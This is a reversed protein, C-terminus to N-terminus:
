KLMSDRIAMAPREILRHMSVGIITSGDCYAIWYGAMALSSQSTSPPAVFYHQAVQNIPVHWLYISYSATGLTAMAQVIRTWATSTASSSSCGTCLTGLIISGSGLYFLTLGYTRIWTHDEIPWVFAPSLMTMGAAIFCWAPVRDIVRRLNAFWIGYSLLVGFFLSDMRLHSRFLDESASFAPDGDAHNLRLGLCGVALVVYTLPVGVRLGRHGIAVLGALLAALFFYFHEEVALSWTHIWIGAFYNQLFALEVFISPWVVPQGMWWGAALTTSMFFWFAPYIKFGRRMLFRIPRVAGSKQYESFLLGSVLFGSLVFFLDVGVWGGRAWTQLGMSSESTIAAHRGMVLAVAFFRVVDLGPNRAARSGIEMPTPLAPRRLRIM